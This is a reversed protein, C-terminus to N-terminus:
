KRSFKNEGLLLHQFLLKLRNKRQFKQKLMEIKDFYFYFVVRVKVNGRNLSLNKVVLKEFPQCGGM